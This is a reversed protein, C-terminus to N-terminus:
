LHLLLCHALPHPHDRSALFLLYVSEGRSGGNFFFLRALLKIKTWRLRTWVESRWFSLNYNKLWRTQLLKNYCCSSVLVGQSCHVIKKDNRYFWCCLFCLLSLSILGKTVNNLWPLRNDRPFFSCINRVSLNWIIFTSVILFISFWKWFTM